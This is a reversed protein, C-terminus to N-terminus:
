NKSNKFGNLVEAPTHFGTIQSINLPNDTNMEDGFVFLQVGDIVFLPASAANTLDHTTYGRINIISRAGVRGTEKIISVGKIQGALADEFNVKGIAKLEIEEAKVM